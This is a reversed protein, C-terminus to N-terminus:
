VNKTALMIQKTSDPGLPEFGDGLFTPTGFGAHALMGKLETPSYCRCSFRSRRIVGNRVVIREAGWRGRELECIPRQVLLSDGLDLVTYGDGARALASTNYQDILLRGGPKLM